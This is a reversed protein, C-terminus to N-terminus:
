KPLPLVRVGRLSSALLRNEGLPVISTVPPGPPWSVEQWNAGQDRSILAQGAQNLALIEGDKMRSLSAITVPIPVRSPTFVDGSLIYINGKLGALLWRGDPLASTAFWSGGYPTPLRTFTKGSDVSRFVIGQEGVILISDGRVAIANLHLGKPNDLKSMWSSWTHGGDATGFILGYAGIVIGRARDFFHVGLLPKDAGDKVLRYAETLSRDETGSAKSRAEAETVVLRAAAHGDLRRHWNEGGDETSLVTGGHGIVWGYRSDVFTVGTLTVSVPVKAQRWTEASGDLIQVVGREGVAVFRRGVLALDLLVAGGVNEGMMASRNLPDIVPGSWAVGTLLMAAAVLMSVRTRQILEVLSPEYRNSFIASMELCKLWCRLWTTVWIRFTVISSRWPRDM